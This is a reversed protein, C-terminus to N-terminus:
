ACYKKQQQQTLLRKIRKQATKIDQKVLSHVLFQKMMDNSICNENSLMGQAITITNEEDMLRQNLMIFYDNVFQMYHKNANKIVYYNGDKLSLVISYTENQKMLDSAELNVDEVLKMFDDHTQREFKSEFKKLDKFYKDYKYRPPNRRKMYSRTKLPM